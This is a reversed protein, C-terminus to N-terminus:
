IHTVSYVQETVSGTNEYDRIGADQVMWRLHRTFSLRDNQTTRIYSSGEWASKAAHYFIQFFSNGNITDWTTVIIGTLGKELVANAYGHIGQPNSWPSVIVDFGSAKFYDLDSLPFDRGDDPWGYGWDAIIINRPLEQCLKASELSSHGNATFDDWRPDDRELLMDHWMIPRCNEARFKESIGTLHRLLLQRPKEKRCVACHGADDAEDCGIHFYPPYDYLEMLEDVIGDLIKLTEANSLCWTWGEPEFLPAFEPHFDLLVHKDSRNRSAAAHGLMNFQPIMILGLEKTLRVWRRVTDKTIKKESWCFEPFTDFQLTGWFEVIAYNFKWFAALRLKKEIEIASTEPFVCLHIGRFAIAPSDILSFEPLLQAESIRKGREPEALQRLTNLAYREGKETTAFIELLSGTCSIRYEEEGLPEELPVTKVQPVVNWFKKFLEKALVESGGHLKLQCNNEVKYFADGTFSLKVPSPVLRNRLVAEENKNM